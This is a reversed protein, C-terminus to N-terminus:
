KGLWFDLNALDDGEFWEQQWGLRDGFLAQKGAGAAAHELLFARWRYHEYVARIHVAYAQALAPNGEIVVLNEDNKSQASASFNHSGTIVVPSDGFPDLVIVKSHVIAFGIGGGKGHPLFQSRTVEAAFHAIPNRIGEPQVVELPKVRTKGRRVLSVKAKDLDQGLATSVVGHVYLKGARAMLADLLVSKGPMFMLFLAGQKAKQILKTAQELEGGQTPTFWVSVRGKGVKAVHAQDNKLTGPFKSGNKKLADWQTRFFGAVNADDIRIGNNIQTCLGTQSWNTSGTWATVPKGKKDSVVMFKNHGLHGSALMRSVVEVGGKKLVARSAKNEDDAATKHAGNSLVVHARKGLLLLKEILERDSLEFMAVHVQGGDKITEDLLALMEVRLDGSLFLRLQDHLDKEQVIRQKFAAISKANVTGLQRAVFQSMVIGRNFSASFTKDVRPSLEVINSDPSSQSDDIVQKGNRLIVPVVRYRARAGANLGHDTWDCRRFPSQTSPVKENPRPQKANFDIRNLVVEERLEKKGKYMTRLLAYGVCNKIPKSSRWVIYIDDCNAFAAIEISM